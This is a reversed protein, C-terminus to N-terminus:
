LQGAKQKLSFKTELNVHYAANLQELMIPVPLTKRSNPIDSREHIKRVCMFWLQTELQRLSDEDDFGYEKKLMNRMYRGLPRRKGGHSLSIPLDCSSDISQNHLSHIIKDVYGRAIGPRNSMRAFEPHRGQLFKQQFDTKDSTMKKTVYGAVYQASDHTLDGLMIHGYDWVSTIFSCHRCNCPRWCKNQMLYKQRVLDLCPPFGFLCYHYHPRQTKTGYEGVAYFRLEGYGFRSM